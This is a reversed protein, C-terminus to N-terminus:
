GLSYPGRQPYEVMEKAGRKWQLYDIAVACKWGHIHMPDVVGIRSEGPQTVFTILELRSLVVKTTDALALTFTNGKM